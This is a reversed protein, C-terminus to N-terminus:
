FMLIIHLIFIVFLVKQLDQYRLDKISQKKSRGGFQTQVTFDHFVVPIPNVPDNSLQVDM